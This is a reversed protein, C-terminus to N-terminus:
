GTFLELRMDLLIVEMKFLPVMVNKAMKNPM